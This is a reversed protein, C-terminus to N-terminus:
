AILLTLPSRRKELTDLHLQENYPVNNKWCHFLIRIWKYALARVAANHSNGRQIQLHYYANAWRSQPISHSAFEHFTQLIFKPCAWRRYVMKSKGSSQTVPAIGSFQQIEQASQFRSRDSGLAVALRPELAAGAGPLSQYFARDPHQEFLLAIQQDFGEIGENLKELQVVIVQVMQASASIVAEDTIMASANQIQSIREDILQKSRCHHKQYFSRLTATKAKKVAQMTPWKRLFDCALQKTLDGTWPLVEPFYGKLISTLRNVLRSRDNVLRRRYEVLMQLKRTQSDEPNWVRLQEHHKRLLDLLLLADTPDSKAGSCYFAERYRAVSKPNPLFLVFFDYKLLAHLLAGRSQEVILAIRGQPFQSRLQLVWDQLAEGTHELKGEVIKGSDSGFYAFRHEEDAWDFAVFAVFTKDSEM